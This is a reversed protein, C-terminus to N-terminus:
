YGSLKPAVLKACRPYCPIRHHFFFATSFQNERIINGMENGKKHIEKVSSMTILSAYEVAETQVQCQTNKWVKESVWGLFM